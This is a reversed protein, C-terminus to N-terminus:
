FEFRPNGIYLYNNSHSAPKGDDYRFVFSFLAQTGAYASIDVQKEQWQSGNKVIFDSLIKNNVSVTLRMNKKKLSNKMAYSFKLTKAGTPIRILKEAYAGYSGPGIKVGNKKEKAFEIQGVTLMFNCAYGRFGHSTRLGNPSDYGVAWDQKHAFSQKGPAKYVAVISAPLAVSLKMQKGTLNKEKGNVLLTVPMKDFHFTLDANKLTKSNIRCSTWNRNHRVHELYAGDTLATVTFPVPDAKKIFRYSREPNLGIARGQADYACWYPIMFGPIGKAINEYIGLLPKKQADVYAYGFPMKRFQFFGNKESRYYALAEPEWVDPLANFLKERIFLKAREIHWPSTLAGELKPSGKVIEPLTAYYANAVPDDVEMTERSWFYTGYLAGRLPHNIRLNPAFNHPNEWTYFIYPIVWEGCYEPMLLLDPYTQRIRRLVVADGETYTKGEFVKKGPKLSYSVAGVCDLYFGPIDHYKAYNVVNRVLYDAVTKAAPNLMSLSKGRISRYPAMDKFFHDTNGQYDPKFQYGKPVKNKFLGAHRQPIYAENCLLSYGHFGIWQFGNKKLGKVAEPHPYPDLCYRHDGLTLISNANWYFLIVNEPNFEAALDKFYADPDEQWRLNPIGTYVAHIKRAFKSDNKWLPKAGTRKEFNKQWYKAAALWDKHVSLRFYDTTLNNDKHLELKGLKQYYLNDGGRMVFHDSEPTHYFIMNQYPQSSEASFMIVNKKGEALIVRPFHFSSAARWMTEPAREPENRLTRSGVGTIVAAPKLNAFHIDLNEGSKAINIKEVGIRFLIDNGAIKYDYFIKRGNELKYILRASDAGTKKLECSDSDPVLSRRFPLDPLPADGVGTIADGDVIMKVVIGYQIELKIRPSVITCVGDKLTFTGAGYLSGIGSLLVVTFIVIKKIM